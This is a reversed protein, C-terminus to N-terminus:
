RKNVIRKLETFWNETVVLPANRADAAQVLRAMLFRQGDPSIDFPTYNNPDDLYYDAPLKFLTKPEGSRFAAGPAVTVVVIERAANV